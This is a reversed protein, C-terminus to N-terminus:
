YGSGTPKAGAGTTGGGGQDGDGPPGVRIQQVGFVLELNFKADANAPDSRVADQFAEGAQQVARTGAAEDLSSDTLYLLGIVNSVRSRREGEAAQAIPTLLAIARGHLELVDAPDLGPAAAARVLALADRTRREDGVGALSEAVRQALGPRPEPGAAQAVDARADAAAEFAGRALAALLAAGALLVVVLLGLAVRRRM